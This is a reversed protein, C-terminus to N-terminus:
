GLRSFCCSNLWDSLAVRVRVMLVETLVSMTSIKMKTNPPALMRLKAKAIIRPTQMPVSVEINM